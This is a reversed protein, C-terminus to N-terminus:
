KSQDDMELFKLNGASNIKNIYEATQFILKHLEALNEKSKFSVCISKINYQSLEKELNIFQKYDDSEKIQSKDLNTGILIISTCKNSSNSEFDNIIKEIEDKSRPSSKTIDYTILLCSTNINKIPIITDNIIDFFNLEIENNSNELKITRKHQSISNLLRESECSNEIVLSKFLETKGSAKPGKITFTYSKNKEM